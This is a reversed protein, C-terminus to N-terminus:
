LTLGLGDNALPRQWTSSLQGRADLADGVGITMEGVGALKRRGGETVVYWVGVM